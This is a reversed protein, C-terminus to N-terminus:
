LDICYNEEQVHVIITESIKVEVFPMLETIGRMVRRYNFSKMWDNTAHLKSISNLKEIVFLISSKKEGRNIMSICENLPKEIISLSAYFSNQFAEFFTQM